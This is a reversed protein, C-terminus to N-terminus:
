PRSKGRRRNLARWLTKSSVGLMAAIEGQNMEKAEILARAQAVQETTLKLPRGLCVGRRRAAQMGARTRESILEREFEALAALMHFYFRGGTSTTDIQEQISCFGIGSERLETIVEILHPLSRGLWDLKWVVLADGASLAELARSLTPRSLATGSLGHVKLIDECGATELAQRQM